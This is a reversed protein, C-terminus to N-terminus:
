FKEIKEGKSKKMKRKGVLHGIVLGIYLVVDLILCALILIIALLILISAGAGEADSFSRNMFLLLLIKLIMVVIPTIMLRKKSINTQSFLYGLILNISIAIICSLVTIFSPNYIKELINNNMRNNSIILLAVLLFNLGIWFLFYFFNFLTKKM